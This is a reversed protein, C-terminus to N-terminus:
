AGVQFVLFNRASVMIRLKALTDKYVDWKVMDRGIRYTSTGDSTIVRSFEIEPTGAAVGLETCEEEDLTYIIKVSARRPGDGDGDADGDADPLGGPGAAAAGPNYILDKLSRGRLYKAPLGFVFSIADM